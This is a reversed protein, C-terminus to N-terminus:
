PAAASRDTLLFAYGTAQNPTVESFTRGDFDVWPATITGAATELESGNWYPLGTVYEWGITRNSSWDNGFRDKAQVRFDAGETYMRLTFEEPITIPLGQTSIGITLKPKSGAAVPTGAAGEPPSRSSM